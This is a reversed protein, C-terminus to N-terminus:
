HMTANAREHVKNTFSAVVDQDYAEYVMLLRTDCAFCM